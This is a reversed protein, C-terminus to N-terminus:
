DTKINGYQEKVPTDNVRDTGHRYSVTSWISQNFAQAEARSKLAKAHAKRARMLQHKNPTKM